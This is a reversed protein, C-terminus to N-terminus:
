PLHQRLYGRPVKVRFDNPSQESDTSINELQIIMESSFAFELISLRTPLLCNGETVWNSYHITAVIEDYLVEKEEENSEEGLDEAPKLREDVIIRTLLKRDLTNILLHNKRKRNGSMYRLTVWVGRNKRDHRMEEIQWSERQLRGTLYAGWNSFFMSTPVEHYLLFSDLSGSMFKRQVTNISQFTRGNTVVVFLPQGFPNTIIYKIIFPNKLYLYGAVARKELPTDWSIIIDTELCCSCQADRDQMQKVITLADQSSKDDLLGTWPKTGCGTLMFIVPMVVFLIIIKLLTIKPKKM